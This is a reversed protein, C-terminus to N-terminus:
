VTPAPERPADDFELPRLVRALRNLVGNALGAEKGTFFAHAIDVYESVVVRAPVDDRAVLEYAGARLLARLISELRPLSWGEVLVTGLMRDIEALRASAGGVIDAFLIRDAPALAEGDVDPGVGKSGLHHREFEKIAIDSALGTMDIQYLAQVAALRSVSRAAPKPAAPKPAAPKAATM